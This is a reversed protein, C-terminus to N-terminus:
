HCLATKTIPTDPRKVITVFTPHSSTRPDIWDHAKGTFTKTNWVHTKYGLADGDNALDSTKRMLDTTQPKYTHSNILVTKSYMDGPTKTTNHQWRIINNYMSGTLDKSECM